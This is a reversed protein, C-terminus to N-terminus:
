LRISPKDAVNSLIPFVIPKVKAINRLTIKPSTAKPLTKPPGSFIASIAPSVASIPTLTNRLKRAEKLKLRAIIFM